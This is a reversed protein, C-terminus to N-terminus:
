DEAPHRIMQFDARQSSIEVGALRSGVTEMETLLVVMRREVLTVATPTMKVRREKGGMDLQSSFRKLQVKLIHVSNFLKEDVRSSSGENLGCGPIKQFGGLM